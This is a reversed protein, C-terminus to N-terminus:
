SVAVGVETDASLIFSYPANHHTGGADVFEATYGSEVYSFDLTVTTGVAYEGWGTVTAKSSDGKPMVITVYATRPQLEDLTWAGDAMYYRQSMSNSSREETAKNVVVGFNDAQSSIGGIMSEVVRYSKQLNNPRVRMFPQPEPTNYQVTQGSPLTYQHTDQIYDSTFVENNNVDRLYVMRSGDVKNGVSDVLEVSSSDRVINFPAKVETYKTNSVKNFKASVDVKLCENEIEFEGSTVVIERNGSGISGNPASITLNINGNGIETDDETVTVGSNGNGIKCGTVGTVTVNTNNDGITVYRSGSVTGSNGSGVIIDQCGIINLSGAGYVVVNSCQIVTGQYPTRYGDSDFTPGIRVNSSNGVTGYNVFDFWAEINGNSLYVILGKFGAPPNPNDSDLSYLLTWGSTTYGAASLEDEAVATLIPSFNPYDSVSYEEGVTLTGNDRADKLDQYTMSIAM